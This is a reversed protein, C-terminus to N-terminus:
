LPLRYTTEEALVASTVADVSEQLGFLTTTERTEVLIETEGDAEIVGLETEGTSWLLLQGLRDAGDLALAIMPKEVSDSSRSVSAEVGREHLEPRYQECWRALAQSLIPYEAPEDIKM